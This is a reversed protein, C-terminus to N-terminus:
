EGAFEDSVSVLFARMVSAKPIGEVVDALVETWGNTKGGM